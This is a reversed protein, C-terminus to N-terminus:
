RWDALLNQLNNSKGRYVNTQASSTSYVVGDPLTIDTNDGNGPLVSASYGNWAGDTLFIHYARRCGLYPAEKTGPSYAWPSDIGKGTKMYDYAQKMMKHSPTGNNAKLGSAFALFNARHATDLAKMSNTAGASLSGAGPSGGNNWMAQWALRIKGDPLLLKDNFVTGLAESLRFIKSKGDGASESMSGSDDVTLIVNPAPPIAVLGPPLKSLDLPDAFVPQCAYIGAILAALLNRQLSLSEKM